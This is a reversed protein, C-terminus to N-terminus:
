QMQVRFFHRANFLFDVCLDYHVVESFHNGRVYDYFVLSSLVSISCVKGNGGMHASHKQPIICRWRFNFCHDDSFCYWHAGSSCTWSKHFISPGINAEGILYCLDSLVLIAKKLCFLKQRNTNCSSLFFSLGCNDATIEGKSKMSVKYGIDDYSLSM